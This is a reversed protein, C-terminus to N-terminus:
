AGAGAGPPKKAGGPAPPMSPPDESKSRTEDEKTWDDPFMEGQELNYYFTETSIANAQWAAVLATLAQPSLKQAVFDTSLVIVVTEEFTELAADATGQWWAFIQLARTVTASIAESFAVLSAQEANSRLQVTEFAEADASKIELMRAGLAAMQEQKEKLANELATLGQGTFEVFGAQAQANETVWAHTAGLILKTTPEFGAAWPTPLGCIHRGQELDASSRYHSINIDAIDSMAPPHVEAVNGKPGHFVFPIFTLGRGRRKPDIQKEEPAANDISKKEVATVVGDKLTYTRFIQVYQHGTTAQNENREWRSERLTLQTLMMKGEVRSEEWDIIDEAQYYALYPRSEKESWDIFTGGRSVGVMDEAVTRLYDNLTAGALNLDKTFKQLEDPMTIQPTKRLLLGVVADRTRRTANFFLARDVYNKYDQEEQEYLEPLYRRGRGKVLRSGAMVDRIKEWEIIYFEYEPHTFIGPITQNVSTPNVTRQTIMAGVM